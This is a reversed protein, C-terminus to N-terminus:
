ETEHERKEKCFFVRGLNCNMSQMESGLAMWDLDWM